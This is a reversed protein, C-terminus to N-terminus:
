RRVGGFGKRELKQWGVNGRIMFSVFSSMRLVSIYQRYGFNEIVCRFIVSFFERGQFYVVGRESLYLASSSVFIGLLVVVAFMFAAMKASLLGLFFSLVLVAYGAFELFPGLIEFAHFYPFSVFAVAGYRPRFLMSRHLSMTELLGRQWRDRQKVLSDVDEPVETWCNANHAYDIAYPIGRESLMRSLRVVIEMDEGVTDRHLMGRGTLYGGAEIVRDRRFAGFAGSIVLLGGIRAWGMRGTIFSRLYEITQYRAYRNRPLHIAKISGLNTECGNVPIVNGGCAALERDAVVTRFLMRQLSEPELLSDADISCVYERSAVSIGANLSDAKGGNIKNVLTLNPITASRYVGVVPATPLASFGLRDALSLDFHEIMVNLTRDTSGDNVVIVEFDPYELALLSLVSQVITMEENFAPAVISVSPLVGPVFLFRKDALGWEARQRAINAGSLTMLALSFANLSVAYFAFAYQFFLLFASLIEGARMYPLRRGYSALFLSPISILAIALLALLYRRDARTLGARRTEGREAQRSIGWGSLIGPDLYRVCQELFMSGDRLHPLVASHIAERRAADSDGNLFTILSAYHGNVVVDAVLRAIDGSRDDAIRRLFYPIRLELADALAFRPNGYAQARYLAFLDDIYSGNARLKRRLEEVVLPRLSEDRLLRMLTEREPIRDGSLFARAGSRRAVPDPSGLFAEGGVLSPYRDSAIEHARSSIRADSDSLCSAVFSATWEGEKNAVSALVIRRVDADSSDRRSRAWDMLDHDGRELIGVIRGRLIEGGGRYTEVVADMMDNGSLALGTVMLRLAVLANRELPLRLRILSVAVAPEVYELLECGLVKRRFSRSSLCSLARDGTKWSAALGYLAVWVESPPMIERSLRTWARFFLDRERDPVRFKAVAIPADDGSLAGALEREWRAVVRFRRKSRVKVFVTAVFATVDLAALTLILLLILGSDPLM